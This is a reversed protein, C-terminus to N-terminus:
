EVEIWKSDPDSLIYLKRYLTKKTEEVTEDIEESVTTNIAPTTEETTVSSDIECAGWPCPDFELSEEIALTEQLNVDDVAAEEQGRPVIPELLQLHNPKMGFVRKIARGIQNILGTKQLIAAKGGISFGWGNKVRQVIDPFTKTNFIEITGKIIKAAKDFLTKIVRGVQNEPNKIHKNTFPDAGFYVPMGVLGNAIQQGEEVQYENGNKTASDLKLFIGSLLARSQFTEEIELPGTVVFELNYDLSM